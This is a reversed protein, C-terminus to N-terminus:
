NLCQSTNFQTRRKTLMKEGEDEAEDEGRRQEKGGGEEGIKEETMMWTRRGVVMGVETRAVTRPSELHQALELYPMQSRLQQVRESRSLVPHERKIMPHDQPPVTRISSSSIGLFDYIMHIM